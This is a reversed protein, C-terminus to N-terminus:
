PAFPDSFAPDTLFAEDTLANLFALLDERDSPTLEFGIVFSSKNPSDRGDGAYAGSSTQTGGRVYHDLVDELTALSGDHMYPATVAINRLTPPKFRGKDRDLGSFTYLGQNDEPYAGEGDLNYLGNNFFAAQDFRSGEHDVSGSLNFGGHCHFCELRESLFLDLGRRAAPTLAETEGEAYRDYPSRYSLLTRQFSALAKTITEISVTGDPGFATEFAGSYYDDTSLREVLEDEHGAMGLEVPSEGFLPGLAQSELDRVLPNGWNLSGAYAVNVLAMPGRPHLEGTSGLGQARADTFARDQEHCSGCSQSENYSLRVDYFLHRGLDVKASSMPNSQPVKPLPFHAPLNWPWSDGSETGGCGVVVLGILGALLSRRM